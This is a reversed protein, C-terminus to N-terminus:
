DHIRMRPEVRGQSIYNELRYILADTVVTGRSVLLLGDVTHIDDFISRFLM